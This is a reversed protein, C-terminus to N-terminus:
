AVDAVTEVEEITEVNNSIKKLTRLERASIKISTGDALTIKQLNPKQAHRTANCAHSRKNGFLPKKNTVKIAM